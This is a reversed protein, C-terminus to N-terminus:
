EKTITEDLNLLVNAVVVWAAETADKGLAKASRWDAYYKQRTSTFLNYLMSIEGDSPTRATCARFGDVIGRRPDPNRAISEALARSAEIVTPDNLLALAQLPTNTRIRRPTCTERSTADLAMFAPFPATRKWFTYMARRFKESGDSLTWKEGSFPSNWVGEPQHPFVSPGGVKRNLLGGSVLMTDRVQEADMRYRPGRALFVNDPDQDRLSTSARSDQRYTRSNAILKHIHKVNWGSEMFEVALWDLLEPHSPKSGQTGFDELTEVLGRGFYQSWIRNVVVRATLPNRTSVLWEALGLRNAKWNSSPPPLFAPTGATVKEGLSLFEGRVHINATLPGNSAKERLIMATPISQELTRKEQEDKALLDRITRLKPTAMAFAKRLELRETGSLSQKGLLRRMGAAALYTSAYASDSSTVRFRGIFHEKWTPSRFELKLTIQKNAPLVDRLQIVLQTTRNQQPYVAWGTDGNSDFLGDLNYGTQIFDAITSDVPADIGETSISIRSLIFNGSSARGSGGGPNSADPIAEIRIARTPKTGHLTVTYDGNGPTPGKALFSGDNQPELQVGPLDTQASVTPTDWLIPSAAATRWKLYEADLEPTSATLKSELAKINQELIQLRKTQALDPVRITPEYFKQAGQNSDGLIEYDCNAFM